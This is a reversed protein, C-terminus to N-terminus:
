QPNLLFHLVFEIESFSFAQNGGSATNRAAELHTATQHTEIAQHSSGTVHKAPGWWGVSRFFFLV